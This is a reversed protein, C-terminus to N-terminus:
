RVVSQKGIRILEGVKEVFFSPMFPKQIYGEVMDLRVQQTIMASSFAIPFRRLGLIDLTKVVEYGDMDPMMIDMVCADINYNKAVEIAAAGSDCEIVNYGSKELVRRELKLTAPTDDVILVNTSGEALPRSVLPKPFRSLLTSATPIGAESWSKEIEVKLLENQRQIQQFLEFDPTNPDVEFHRDHTDAVFVFEGSCGSCEVVGLKMHPYFWNGLRLFYQYGAYGQHIEFHHDCWVSEANGWSSIWDLQSSIRIPIARDKYALRLYTTVAKAFLAGDIQSLRM